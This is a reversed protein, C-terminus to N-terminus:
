VTKMEMAEGPASLPAGALSSLESCCGDLQANLWGLRDVVLEEMRDLGLAKVRVKQRQRIRKRRQRVGDQIDQEYKFVDHRLLEHVHFQLERVRNASLKTEHLLTNYKDDKSQVISRLERITEARAALLQKARNVKAEHASLIGDRAQREELLAQAARDRMIALKREFLDQASAAKGAFDESYKEQESRMEALHREADRLKQTKIEIERRFASLKNAM